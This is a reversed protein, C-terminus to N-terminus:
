PRTTMMVTDIKPKMVNESPTWSKESTTNGSIRTMPLRNSSMRAKTASSTAMVAPVSAITQSSIFSGAGTCTARAPTPVISSMTSTSETVAMAVQVIARSQCSAMLLATRSAALAFAACASSAWRAM